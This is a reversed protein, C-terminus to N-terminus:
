SFAPGIEPGHPHHFTGTSGTATPSFFVGGCNRLRHKDNSGNQFYFSGLVLIHYFWSEYYIYVYIYIYVMYIYICNYIYIYVTYTYTCYDLSGRCFHAAWGSAGPLRAKWSTGWAIPPPTSSLSTCWGNVGPSAPLTPHNMAIVLHPIWLFGYSVMPFWLFGYSVMPFRLFGYSVM